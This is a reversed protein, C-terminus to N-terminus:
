RRIRIWEGACKKMGLKAAPFGKDYAAQSEWEDNM